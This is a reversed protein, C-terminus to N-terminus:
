GLFSLFYSCLNGSSFNLIRNTILATRPLLRRRFGATETERAGSEIGPHFQSTVITVWSIARAQFTEKLPNRLNNQFSLRFTSFIGYLHLKYRPGDM